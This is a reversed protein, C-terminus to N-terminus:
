FLPFASFTVGWSHFDADALNDCYILIARVPHSFESHVCVAIESGFVALKRLERRKIMLAGAGLMLDCDSEIITGIRSPRRLDQVDKFGRVYFRRKEQHSHVRLTVRRKNTADDIVPVLNSVVGIIMRVQREAPRLM